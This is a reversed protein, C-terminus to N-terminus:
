EEEPILDEIYAWKFVDEFSDCFITNDKKHYYGCGYSGDKLIFVCFKREEPIEDKDHWVSNIRWEAGDSFAKHIAMVAKNDTFGLSSGSYDGAQKEIDQKNM